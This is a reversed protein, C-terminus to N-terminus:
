QSPPKSHPQNKHKRRTHSQKRLEQPTKSTALNVYFLYMKYHEVQVDDDKHKIAVTLVCLLAFMLVIRTM